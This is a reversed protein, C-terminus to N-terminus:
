VLDYVCIAGSLTNVIIEYSGDSDIVCIVPKAMSGNSKQGKETSDPLPTKYLLRGEYNLIYLSGRTIGYGQETDFYSCFVIEKKGDFDLDSCVVPSAYEFQPSTRKTLNYPWAYPEKKDLSFCHVKGNYSNFLIEPVGDGDIDEACPLSFVGSAINTGSQYLPRGLDTPITEWNYGLKDNRYRTRDGNLIAVSMYESPPYTIYKRNCMLVSTIIEPKGDFDIDSVAVGAHGFEAKYLSERKENGTVAFGFGRNEGRIEAAYNEYFAVEGWNRGGFVTPNAPYPSGDPEFVCLYSMDSPAIIELIGDGNLDATTIGDMFVGYLLQKETDPTQPWGDRIKGDYNYVYISTISEIGLGAIIETKGDGDLDAAELSRVSVDAPIQPWGPLFYGDASLVSIVGRGHGTIIEIKGDGDVDAIEVDSWTHGNSVGFEAFPTNRDKGSNVKWKQKGTEAELVTISYNSFVIEIKGDGDIDMVAPSSYYSEETWGSLTGANAYKIVPEIGASVALPATILFCVFFIVAKKM